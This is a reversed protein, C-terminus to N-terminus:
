SIIIAKDCLALAVLSRRRPQTKPMRGSTPKARFVKLELAHSNRREPEPRPLASDGYPEMEGDAMLIRDRLSVNARVLPV